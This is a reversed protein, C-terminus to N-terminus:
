AAVAMAVFCFVFFFALFNESGEYIKYFGRLSFGSLHVERANNHVTPSQDRQEVFYQLNRECSLILRSSSLVVRACHQLM